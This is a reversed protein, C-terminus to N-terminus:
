PDSVAVSDETLILHLTIDMCQTYMYCHLTTSHYVVCLVHMYICTVRGNHVLYMNDCPTTSLSGTMFDRMKEIIIIVRETPVKWDKVVDDVRHWWLFKVSTKVNLLFNNYNMIVYMTFIIIKYVKNVNSWMADDDGTKNGDM